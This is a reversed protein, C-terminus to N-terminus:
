RKKRAEYVARFQPTDYCSWVADSLIRVRENDDHSRGALFSWRQKGRQGCSGRRQLAAVLPLREPKLVIGSEILVTVAMGGLKLKEIEDLAFSTLFSPLLDKMDDM